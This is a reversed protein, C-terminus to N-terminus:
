VCVCMWRCLFADAACIDIFVSQCKHSERYSESSRVRKAGVLLFDDANLHTICLAAASFRAAGRTTERGRGGGGGMRWVNLVNCVFRVCM